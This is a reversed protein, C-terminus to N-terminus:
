PEETKTQRDLEPAPRDLVAANVVHQLKDICVRLVKVGAEQSPESAFDATIQWDALLERLSRILTDDSM